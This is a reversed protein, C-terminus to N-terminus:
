EFITKGTQRALDTYRIVLDRLTSHNSRDDLDSFWADVGPPQEYSFSLIRHQPAGFIREVGNRITSVFGGDIDLKYSDVFQFPLSSHHSWVDKLEPPVDDSRIGREEFFRKSAVASGSSAGPLTRPDLFVYLGETNINHLVCYVGSPDPDLPVYASAPSPSSLLSRQGSLQARADIEAAEKLAEAVYSEVRQLTSPLARSAFDSLSVDADRFQYQSRVRHDPVNLLSRLSIGFSIGCGYIYQRDLITTFDNIVYASASAGIIHDRSLGINRGGILVFEVRDSDVFLLELGGDAHLPPLSSVDVSSVRSALPSHPPTVSRVQEPASYGRSSDYTQFDQPKPPEVGDSDRGSDSIKVERVEYLASRYGKPKPGKKYAASDKFAHARTFEQRRREKEKMRAHKSM